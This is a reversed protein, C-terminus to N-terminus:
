HGRVFVGEPQYEKMEEEILLDEMDEEQQRAMMKCYEEYETLKKEEKEM